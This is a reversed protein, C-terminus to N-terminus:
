LTQMPHLLDCTRIMDGRNSLGRLALPKRPTMGGDDGGILMASCKDSCKQLCHWAVFGVRM